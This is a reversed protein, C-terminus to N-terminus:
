NAKANVSIFNRVQLKEEDTLKAKPAMKDLWKDWQEMTGREPDHLKHCKGCRADYITKGALFAEHSVTKSETKTTEETAAITGVTKKSCAFIILSLFSITIIKKMFTFKDKKLNIDM